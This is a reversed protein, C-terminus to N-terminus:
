PAVDWWITAQQRAAEPGKSRLFDLVEAEREVPLCLRIRMFRAQDTLPISARTAFNEDVWLELEAPVGAETIVAAADAATPGTPRELDWFHRWADSMNSLPHQEPLELVVRRRAHQNLALVFDALPAVNYAVHHCVVVDTKPARSSAEPWDGLIESHAAGVEEAAMAFRDLMVPQHDVGIVQRAPPVLALAARGGGCGVDLVSDPGVERARRHSISDPIPGEVTFLEPPHIWPSEPAGALIEAPISWDALAQAWHDSAKM